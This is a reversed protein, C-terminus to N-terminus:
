TGSTSIPPILAAGGFATKLNEATIVERPPGAAVLRRNLIICMDASEEAMALDHTAYVITSGALRLDRLVDLVLTQTPIDIGSFPEDFLFVDAQQLLARALFVRQQQGGSLAGIQVSTLAAM